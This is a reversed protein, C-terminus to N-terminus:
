PVERLIGANRYVASLLKLRDAHFQRQGPRVGALYEKYAITEEKSIPRDVLFACFCRIDRLYKEITAASKEEEMMYQEFRRIKAEYNVQQEM